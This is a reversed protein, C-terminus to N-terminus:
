AASPCIPAFSLHQSSNSRRLAGVGVRQRAPPVVPALAHIRQLLGRLRPLSSTRSLYTGDPRFWDCHNDGLPLFHERLVKALVAGMADSQSLAM